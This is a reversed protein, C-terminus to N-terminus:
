VMLAKIGPLYQRSVTVEINNPLTIFLRSIDKYLEQIYNVNIIYSRHVRMFLQPDLKHVFKGIGYNSLFTENHITHIWTYDKEAKLHTIDAVQISTLRSGREALIRVPFNATEKVMLSEAVKQAVQLRQLAMLLRYESLPKLLYDSVGYEFARWAADPSDSLLIVDPLHMTKELVEFGNIGPLKVNIFAVDPLLTDIYKRAEIGNECEWFVAHFELQKLKEILQGRCARDKDAILVTKKKM